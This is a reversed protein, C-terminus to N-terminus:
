RATSANEFVREFPAEFRRESSGLSLSFSSLSMWETKLSLDRELKDWNKDVFQLVFRFASAHHAYTERAVSYGETDGLAGKIGDFLDQSRKLFDVVPFGDDPREIQGLRASSDDLHAIMTSRHRRISSAIQILDDIAGDLEDNLLDTEHLLGRLRKLTVNKRIEGGVRTAESDTVRSITIFIEDLLAYQFRAFCRPAVNQLIRQTEADEFLTQFVHVDEALGQLQGALFGVVDELEARGSM